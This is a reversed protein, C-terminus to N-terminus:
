EDCQVGGEETFPSREVGAAVEVRFRVEITWFRFFCGPAPGNASMSRKPFSEKLQSLRLLIVAAARAFTASETRRFQSGLPWRGCIRSKAFFSWRLSQIEMKWNEM